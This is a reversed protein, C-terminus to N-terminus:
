FDFLKNSKELVIFPVNRLITLREGGKFEVTLDYKGSCPILDETQKSSLNLWYGVNFKSRALIVDLSQKQCSFHVTNIISPDIGDIDFYIQLIDGRVVVIKKGEM